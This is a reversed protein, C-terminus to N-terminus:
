ELEKRKYPKVTLGKAEQEKRYRERRIERNYEMIIDKNREYHRKKAAKIAEIREAETKYRFPRHARKM